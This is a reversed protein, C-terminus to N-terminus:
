VKIFLAVHGRPGDVAICATKGSSVYDILKQLAALGGKSAKGKRQGSGRIPVIGRLRMAPIIFQGDFNRSVMAAAGREAYMISPVQHAHLVAYVYTEGRKLIAARSDNHVRLRCTWRLVYVVLAIAWSIVFTSIKRRIERHKKLLRAGLATEIAM